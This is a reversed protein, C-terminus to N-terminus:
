LLERPLRPECAPGRDSADYGLPAWVGLRLRRGQGHAHDVLTSRQGACEDLEGIEFVIGGRKLRM